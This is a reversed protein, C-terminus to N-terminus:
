EDNQEKKPTLEIMAYDSFFTLRKTTKENKDRLTFFRVVKPANTKKSCAFPCTVPVSGRTDFGM